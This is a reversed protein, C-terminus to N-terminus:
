NVMKVTSSGKGMVYTISPTIMIMIPNAPHSKATFCLPFNFGVLGWLVEFYLQIRVRLPLSAIEFLSASCAKDSHSM